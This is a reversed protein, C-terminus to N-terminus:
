VLDLVLLKADNIKIELTFTVGCFDIPDLM